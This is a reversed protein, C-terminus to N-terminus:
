ARLQATMKTLGNEDLRLVLEHEPNLALDDRIHARLSEFFTRASGGFHRVIAVVHTVRALLMKKEVDTRLLSVLQNIEYANRALWTQSFPELAETNDIPLGFHFLAVERVIKDLDRQPAAGDLTKLAEAANGSIYQAHAFALPYAKTRFPELTTLWAQPTIRNLDLMALFSHNVPADDVKLQLLERLLAPGCSTPVPPVFVLVPVQIALHDLTNQKQDALANRFADLAESTKGVRALLAAKIVLQGASVKALNIWKLGESVQGIALSSNALSQYDEDDRAFNKAVISIKFLTAMFLAGSIGTALEFVPIELNLVSSPDKWMEKIATFTGLMAEITSRVTDWSLPESSHWHQLTTYGVVLTLFDAATVLGFSVQPDNRGQRLRQQLGGLSIIYELHRLSTTGVCAMLIIQVYFYSAGHIFHAAAISAIIAFSFLACPMDFGELKAHAWLYLPGIEKNGTEVVLKRGLIFGKLLTAPWFVFSCTGMLVNAAYERWRTLVPKDQSGAIEKAITVVLSDTTNGSPRSLYEFASYLAFLIGTVCYCFFLAAVAWGGFLSTAVYLIAACVISLLLQGGIPAV